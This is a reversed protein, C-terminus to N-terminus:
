WFGYARLTRDRDEAAELKKEFPTCGKDLCAACIPKMCLRCLGGVDDLKGKVPVVTGCHFCTITDAEQRMGGLDFSYLYGGASRM